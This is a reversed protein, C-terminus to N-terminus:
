SSPSMRSSWRREVGPPAVGIQEVSLTEKPKPLAMRCRRSRCGSSFTTSAGGARAHRSSAAGAARHGARDAGARTGLLISGAIIIGATAQQKIVLYAGVALCRRVAADHALCPVPRGVRRHHRRCASAGRPLAPWLGVVARWVTRGHGHCSPGGFQAPEDRRPQQTRKRLASLEISPQRVRYETIATIAVLIVAGVTATSASCRTSSTVSASISHCGRCTSCPRPASRRVHLLPDPRPRAGARIREDDPCPPSAQRRTRVHAQRADRRHRWRHPDPRPQARHRTHGPLRLPRLGPRLPRDTDSHQPEAAGPRLGAAHLVLWYSVPHEAPRQLGCRRCLVHSLLCTSGCTGHTATGGHVTRTGEDGLNAKGIRRTESRRLGM